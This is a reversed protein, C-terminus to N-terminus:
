VSNMSCYMTASTRSRPSSYHVEEGVADGDPDETDADVARDDAAVEDVEREAQAHRLRGRIHEQERDAVAVVRGRRDELAELVARLADVRDDLRQGEGVDDDAHRHDREDERQGEVRVLVGVGDVGVLEDPHVASTRAAAAARRSGAAR